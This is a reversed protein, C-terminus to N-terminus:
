ILFLNLVTITLTLVLFLMTGVNLIGHKAIDKDSLYIEKDTNIKIERKKTYHVIAIIGGIIMGYQLNSYIFMVLWSGALALLNFSGGALAIEAIEYYENMAKEVPLAVISGMLNIIMHMYITYKVDRTKTYVYGLLIGLLAAYFFQYLNAHLLGFAVASFIIAVHDGYISLRDIILKRSIIEEVIPAIIVVLIFTLWIPTEQIIEAVSNEPLNGTLSGVIQNLFQGVINGAMMLVQGTCFLLVFDKLSLESKGRSKAKETGTLLLIFIPFAVLYQSACSIVLSWIASAAFKTYAEPSLIREAIPYALISVAQSIVIYLFMALFVRSFHRRLRKKKENREEETEIVVNDYGYFNGNM